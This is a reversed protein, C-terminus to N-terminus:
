TFLGIVDKISIIAMLAFLILIGIFHVYGELNRNVPKGRFLEIILFLLRGGDAQYAKNYKVFYSM